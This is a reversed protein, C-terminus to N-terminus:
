FNWSISFSALGGAPVNSFDLCCTWDTNGNPFNNITGSTLVIDGTYANQCSAQGPNKATGAPYITLDIYGPRQLVRSANERMFTAITREQATMAANRAAEKWSELIDESIQQRPRPLYVKLVIESDGKRRTAM